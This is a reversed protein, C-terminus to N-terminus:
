LSILFSNRDLIKKKLNNNKQRIEERSNFYSYDM